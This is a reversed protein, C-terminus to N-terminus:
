TEIAGDVAEEFRFASAFWLVGAPRLVLRVGDQEIELSVRTELWLHIVIALVIAIGIAFDLRPTM